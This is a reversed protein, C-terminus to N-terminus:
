KILAIFLFFVSIGALTKIVSNKERIVENKEDLRLRFNFKVSDCDDPFYFESLQTEHGEIIRNLSDIKNSYEKVLSDCSQGFSYSTLFLFIILVKM